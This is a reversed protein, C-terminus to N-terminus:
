VASRFRQGDLECLAEYAARPDIEDVVLGKGYGSIREAHAGINFCVLPLGLMMCELSVYNFTEPCVSPIFGVTVGHRELIAPLEAREYPGTVVVGAPLRVSEDITGVVVLRQGAGLLGALEKVILAGKDVSIHGIVAVTMSGGAPVEYPADWEVMPKHPTIRVTDPRFSFVSAAIAHSAGSFFRVEDCADFLEQWAARWREWSFGEPVDGMYATLKGFCAADCREPAPIGCFVHDQNVLNYNPCVSFYDHFAFVLKLGHVRRLELIDGLLEPVSAFASLGGKAWLVLENVFLTDLAAYRPDLFDRLSEATFSLSKSGNGATAFVKKVHIDWALTLVSRGAELHEARVSEAYANAGGGYKHDIVCVPRSQPALIGSFLLERQSGLPSRAEARLLSRHGPTDQVFAQATRLHQEFSRVRAVLGSVGGTSLAGAVKAALRPVANALGGHRKVYSGFLERGKTLKRRCKGVIGPREGGAACGQDAIYWKLFSVPLSTDFPDPFAQRVDARCRYLLRMEDTIPTGDDFRLHKWKLGRLQEHGLSLLQREYQKWLEFVAPMDKGYVSVMQSGAGSDYGTFHYFRLPQGNATYSGDPTREIAREALNWSAANCGPDRLIHLRSFFAPALDCWRQDTFIGNPIDDYCFDYLRECWWSAFERGQGRNAAAVFGLNFVGHKLACIENDVVARLENMPRLLHPTLVIDHEDLLTSIKELSDFVMIDPDLYIVKDHGEKGLFHELAPGKAATCIEVVRHRFLWAKYDRIGIGSFQLVRDFPESGLDFGEPPEEALLLCFTWDPHFKKISKALIRAKPIYNNSCSTFVLM